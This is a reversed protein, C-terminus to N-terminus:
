PTVGPRIAAYPPSFFAVAVVVVVVVAVAAIVCANAVTHTTLPATPM